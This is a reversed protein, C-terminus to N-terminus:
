KNLLQKYADIIEKMDEPNGGHDPHYKMALKRFKKKIDQATASTSLGLFALLEPNFTDNFLIGNEKYKTYYVNYFFEEIIEVFLEKSVILLFSLPYKAESIKSDKTSFFDNWVLKNKSEDYHHGFRIRIEQKKLARLKKKIADKDL